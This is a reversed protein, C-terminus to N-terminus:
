LSRPLPACAAAQHLRAGESPHLFFAAPSSASTFIHGSDLPIPTIIFPRFSSILPFTHPSVKGLASVISLQYKVSSDM